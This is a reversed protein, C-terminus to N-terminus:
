KVMNNLATIEKITYTTEKSIVVRGYIDEFSLGCIYREGQNNHSIEFKDMSNLIGDTYEFIFYIDSTTSDNSINSKFIFYIYNNITVQANEKKSLFLANIVQTSNVKESNNQFLYNADNTAKYFMRFKLSETETKITDMAESKITNLLDIDLKSVDDVYSNVKDVKFEKIYSKLIYGYKTMEEETANCRVVVVDGKSINTPNDITFSLNRLNDETWKNTVNAYVEPSIGTIIVEVYDFIDITKGTELGTVKTSYKLNRFNCKVKKALEKNYTVTIIVSDGNSLNSKNATIQISDIVEQITALVETNKEQGALQTYLKEKDLTCNAKGISQLGSFTVEIYDSIKVIRNSSISFLKIIIFLVILFIFAFIVKIHFTKLKPQKQDM